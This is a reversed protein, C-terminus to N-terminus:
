AKYGVAGYNAGRFEEQEGPPLRWEDMPVVGPEVVDLGDLLKAVEAESRPTIWWTKGEAALRDITRYMEAHTEVFFDSAQHTLMLYSGRPVGDMLGSTIRYATDNGRVFGLTAPMLVGVPRSLDLTAAAKRLIEDTDRLKSQIYATAGEPTRSKLKHAHALMVPDLVLYVVRSEPAIGQAIDHVNDAGSVRCGTVLFQRIGAEGALHRVVRELFAQGARAVAQYGQVGGPVSAFMQDAVERDVAFHADGGEVYEAIRSPPATCLDFDVEYAKLVHDDPPLARDNVGPM